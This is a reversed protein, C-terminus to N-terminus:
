MFTDYQNPSIDESKLNCIPASQFMNHIFSQVDEMDKIQETFDSDFCFRCKSKLENLVRDRMADSAVGRM